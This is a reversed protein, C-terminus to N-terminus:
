GTGDIFIRYKPMGLRFMRGKIKSLLENSEAGYLRYYLGWSFVVKEEARYIVNKSPDKIKFLTSSSQRLTWRTPFQFSSTGTPYPSQVIPQYPINNNYNIKSFVSITLPRRIDLDENIEANLEEQQNALKDELMQVKAV